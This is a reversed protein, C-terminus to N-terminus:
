LQTLLVQRQLNILGWIAGGDTKRALSHDKQTMKIIKLSDVVMGGPATLIIFENKTQTLKFGANIDSGSMSGAGNFFIRTFGGAPVSAGAPIVWKDLSSEKDSLFYGSLDFATGGSNYLEAWDSNNGMGDIIGNMNSCSYENIVVQSISYYGYFCLSILLLKKM